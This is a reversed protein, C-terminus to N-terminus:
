KGQERLRINRFQVKMPPGPHMQLAIIGSAAASAKDQDTFRCMMVGNVYLTIEPGRCVIRYTNWDEKKFAKLLEAPDGIVQESKKGDAGIAVNQGRGAILGRKHHYVFGVLKGDGTMDAQYGYTDWNPRRESRIQIGSNGEASLRFDALLDFDGPAGDKWVLYNCQKCPKEATSQATLAGDEVRWEGPAGDWGTLDRGNFLERWGEKGMEQLLRQAQKKLNRDAATAVLKELLAKAEDPYSAAMLPGIRLLATEAEARVASEGLATEIIRGAEPHPTEALAALALKKEDPREVLILAEKLGALKREVSVEQLPILRLCARLALIKLKADTSKKALETVDPLADTTPWDCVMRLAEDKLAADAAATRVAALSRAGGLSRLVRLAAPRAGGTAAAFCAGVREACAERDAQRRCIASLATELAELDGPSGAKTLLNLLVPLEGAGGLDGLVKLGAERVAADADAASKLLPPLAGAVRRQGILQIAIVRTKPDGGALLATVAADAEKSPFAAVATRAARATAADPSSMWEILRPLASVDGIQTLVGIVTVVAEPAANRTAELIAPVAAADRRDGLAHLVLVQREGTLTGLEGALARTVAAGAMEHAARLSAAFMTADGGRLQERLLDAGDAGRAILAGCMGAARLPDPAGSARVLDYLVRAEDANKRGLAADACALCGAAVASRSVPSAKALADKLAAAAGTTGISGLSLAASAVVEPDDNSLLGALAGVAGPDRRAGISNIVGALLSGKLSGLAARLAEGAEPGPINELALRAPQSLKGDGLMAALAPVAQGTGIVALERCAAHKEEVKGEAKLVAVLREIREPTGRSEQAAAPPVGLALFSLVLPIRM